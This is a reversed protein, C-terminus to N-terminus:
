VQRERAKRGIRALGGGQIAFQTFGQQSIQGSQPERRVFRLVDHLVSEEAQVLMNRRAPRLFVNAAPQKADGMVAGPIALFAIGPAEAPREIGDEVRNRVLRRRLLRHQCLLLKM